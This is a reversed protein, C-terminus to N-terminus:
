KGGEQKDPVVFRLSCRHNQHIDWWVFTIGPVSNSQQVLFQKLFFVSQCPNNQQVTVLVVDFMIWFAVNSCMNLTTTPLFWLPSIWLLSEVHWSWPSLTASQLQLFYLKCSDNLMDINQVHEFCQKTPLHIFWKPCIQYLMEATDTRENCRFYPCESLQTRLTSRHSPPNSRTPFDNMIIRFTM